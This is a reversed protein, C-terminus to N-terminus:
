IRPFYIAHNFSTHKLILCIVVHNHNISSFLYEFLHRSVRMTKKKKKSLFSSRGVYYRQSNFFSFFIFSADVLWEFHFSNFVSRNIRTWKNIDWGNKTDIITDLGFPFEKLKCDGLESPGEILSSTVGWRSLSRHEGENLQVFVFCFLSQLKRSTRDFCFFFWLRRSLRWAETVSTDMISSHISLLSAETFESYCCSNRFVNM